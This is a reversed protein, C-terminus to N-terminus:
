SCQEHLAEILRIVYGWENGYWLPFLYLSGLQQCYEEDLISSEWRKKIHSSVLPLGEAHILPNANVAFKGKMSKSAMVRLYEMVELLPPRKDLVVELLTISGSINPVRLAFGDFHIGKMDEGIGDVKGIAKAAGTTTPIINVAGASMRRCGAKMQAPRDQLGQEGATYAHVTQIAGASFGWDDRWNLLCRLPFAISGSTCSAGSLVPVGKLSTKHVGHVVTLIDDKAPASVAVCKVGCKLHSDYGPKDGAARSLFVGTCEAVGDVAHNRWPIDAPNKESYLEIRHEAGGTTLVLVNSDAEMPCPWCDFTSDNAKCQMFNRAPNKPDLAVENGAVVTFKLSPHEIMARLVNGGIRGGIGNIGVRIGESTLM